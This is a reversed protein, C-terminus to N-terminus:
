SKKRKPQPRRPEDRLVLGGLFDVVSIILAGLFAPIFGNVEFGVGFSLGIWGTLFFMLTNVLLMGLGLTLVIFPCGLLTVLPRVLANVIGFIVALALYGWWEMGPQPNIGNGQLLMIAAFFGLANVVLRMVWKNM